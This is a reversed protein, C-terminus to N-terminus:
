WSGETSYLQIIQEEFCVDFDISLYYSTTYVSNKTMKSRFHAYQHSEWKVAGEQHVRVPWHCEQEACFNWLIREYDTEDSEAQSSMAMEAGDVQILRCIM